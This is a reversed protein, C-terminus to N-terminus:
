ECFVASLLQYLVTPNYPKGLHGDMGVAKVQRVDEDFTNATLAYIPVTKADARQLSRIATAADFGNMVPMQIDMFILDFFGVPQVSFLAVAEKGNNADVVEAGTECIIRHAIERNILNDEALLIRKGSLEPAAVEEQNLPSLGSTAALSLANEEDAYEMRLTVSFTTGQGLKSKCQITGDMLEVLKKAIAMGLGTGETAATVGTDARFFTEFVKDIYEPAIGIGTDAFSFVYDGYQLNGTELQEVRVSIKGGEPTFKVANSLINIFVQVIHISDGIVAPHTVSSLDVTITQAKAEASSTMLSVVSDILAPILLPAKAIPIHGAEIRSMNLVNNIIELLYNSSVQIKKLCKDVYERDGIHKQAIATMGIIANMPTRIDHSMSSLFASKAKSAAEAEYYAAEYKQRQKSNDKLAAITDSLLTREDIFKGDASADPHAAAVQAALKRIPRYQRIISFLMVIVVVVLLLLILIILTIQRNAIGTLTDEYRIASVFTWSNTESVVKQLVYKQGSPADYEEESNGNKLYDPFDITADPSGVRYILKGEADYVAAMGNGNALLEEFLPQVNKVPMMMLIHAQPKSTLQPLPYAYTFCTSEGSGFVAVQTTNSEQIDRVIQAVAEPPVGISSVFFERLSHEGKATYIIDPEATRCFALHRIFSNGVLYRALQEKLEISDTPNDTVPELYFASDTGIHYAISIIESMRESITNEVSHLQKMREGLVSRRIESTFSSVAVGAIILSAIIFIAMVRLIVSRVFASKRGPKEKKERMYTM